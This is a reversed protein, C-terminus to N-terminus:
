AHIHKYLHVYYSGLLVNHVCLANYVSDIICSGTNKIVFTEFYLKQRSVYGTMGFPFHYAFISGSLITIHFRQSRTTLQSGNKNYVHRM